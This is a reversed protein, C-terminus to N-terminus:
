QRRIKIQSTYCFLQSAERSVYVRVVGLGEFNGRLRLLYDHPFECDRSQLIFILQLSTKIFVDRANRENNEAIKMHSELFCDRETKERVETKGKADEEIDKAKQAKRLQEIQVKQSKVKSKNKTLQAELEKVKEELKKSSEKIKNKYINADDLDKKLQLSGCLNWVLQGNLENFTITYFLTASAFRFCPYM